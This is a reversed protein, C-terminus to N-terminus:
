AIFGVAIFRARPLASRLSAVLVPELRGYASAFGDRHFLVCLRLRLRWLVMPPHQRHRAVLRLLCRVHRSSICWSSVRRLLLRLRWPAMQMTQRPEVFSSSASAFRGLLWACWGPTWFQLSAPGTAVSTLWAPAAAPAEATLYRCGYAPLCRASAGGSSGCCCHDRCGCGGALRVVTWATIWSLRNHEWATLLPRTIRPVIM